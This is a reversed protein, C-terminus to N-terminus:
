APLTKRCSRAEEAKKQFAKKVKRMRALADGLTDFVHGVHASAQNIAIGLKGAAQCLNLLQAVNAPQRVQISKQRLPPPSPRPNWVIGAIFSAHRRRSANPNM